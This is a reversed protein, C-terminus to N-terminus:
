SDLARVFRVRSLILCINSQRAYAASSVPRPPQPTVDSDSPHLTSSESMLVLWINPYVQPLVKCARDNGISTVQIMRSSKCYIM